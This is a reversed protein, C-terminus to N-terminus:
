IIAGEINLLIGVFLSFKGSLYNGIIQKKHPFLGENKFKINPGVLSLNKENRDMNDKYYWLHMYIRVIKM